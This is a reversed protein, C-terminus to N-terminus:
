TYNTLEAYVEESLSDAPYEVCVNHEQTAAIKGPRGVYDDLDRVSRTSSNHDFVVRIKSGYTTVYLIDSVDDLTWAMSM